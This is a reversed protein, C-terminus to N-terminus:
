YHKILCFYIISFFSEYHQTTYNVGYYFNNRYQNDLKDIFLDLSIGTPELPPELCPSFRTLMINPIPIGYKNIFRIEQLLKKSFIFETTM